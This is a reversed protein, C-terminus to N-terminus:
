ETALVYTITLQWRAAATPYSSGQVARAACSALATAVQSTVVQTSIVAGDPGVDARIVLTGAATPDKRLEDAYCGRVRASDRRVFREVIGQDVGGSVAVTATVHATPASSGSGSGSGLGLGSGNGFTSSGSGSGINAVSGSGRGSGSAAASGSGSAAASGSGSGGSGSGAASGSGTSAVTDDASREGHRGAAYSHDDTEVEPAAGAAASWAASDSVQKEKGPGIAWAVHNHRLVIVVRGDDGTKIVDDASVVGGKDLARIEGARIARVDGAKETVDGAPAGPVPTPGHDHSSSCAAAISAAALGLALTVKV